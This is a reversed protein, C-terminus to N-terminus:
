KWDADGVKYAFFESISKTPELSFNTHLYFYVNQILVNLDIAVM